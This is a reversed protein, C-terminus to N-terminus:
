RLAKGTEITSALYGRRELNEKENALEEHNEPDTLFEVFSGISSSAPSEQLAQILRGFNQEIAYCRGLLYELREETSLERDISEDIIDYSM